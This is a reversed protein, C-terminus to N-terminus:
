KSLIKLGIELQRKVFSIQNGVDGKLDNLLVYHIETHTLLTHFPHPLTVFHKNLNKYRTCEM